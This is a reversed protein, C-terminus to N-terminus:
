RRTEHKMDHVEVVSKRFFIKKLASKDQAVNVSIYPCIDYMVTKTMIDFVLLYHRRLRLFGVLQILGLIFKDDSVPTEMSNSIFMRLLFTKKISIHVGSSVRSVSFLLRKM